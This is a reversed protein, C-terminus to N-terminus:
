SGRPDDEGVHKDGLCNREKAMVKFDSTFIPNGSTVDFRFIV